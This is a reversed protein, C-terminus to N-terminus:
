CPTNAIAYEFNEGFDDKRWFALTCVREPSTKELCETVFAYSVSLACTLHYVLSCFFDKGTVAATGEVVSRLSRETQMYKTMNEQIILVGLWDNQKVQKLHIVLRNGPKFNDNNQNLRCETKELSAIAKIETAIKEALEAASGVITKCINLYNDGISTNKSLCNNISNNKWAKNLAIIKGERDILAVQSDFADFTAQFLQFHEM